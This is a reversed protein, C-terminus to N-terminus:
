ADVENIYQLYANWEDEKLLAKMYNKDYFVYDMFEDYCAWMEGNFGFGYEWDKYLSYVATKDEEEQMIDLHCMLEYLTHDHGIMWDLKYKEYAIKVINM